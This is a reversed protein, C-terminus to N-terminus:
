HGRLRRTARRWLTATGGVVGERTVLARARDLQYRGVLARAFRASPVNASAVDLEPGERFRGAWEAEVPHPLPLGRIALRRGGVIVFPGGKQDELVEVPPGESWREYEAVDATRASGLMEELAALLLGSSVRRRQGGEIAYAGGPARVLFPAPGGENPQLQDLWSSAMAARRANTMM